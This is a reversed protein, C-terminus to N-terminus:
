LVAGIQLIQIKLVRTGLVPNLVKLSIFLESELDFTVGIHFELDVIPISQTLSPYLISIRIFDLFPEFTFFAIVM